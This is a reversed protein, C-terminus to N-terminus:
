SNWGTLRGGFLTQAQQEVRELTTFWYEALPPEELSASGMLRLSFVDVEEDYTVVLHTVDEM